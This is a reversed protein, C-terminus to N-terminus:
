GAVCKGILIVSVVSDPSTIVLTEEWHGWCDGRFQVKVMGRHKSRLLTNRSKCRFPTHLRPFKVEIDTSSVNRLSITLEQVEGPTSTLFTLSRTSVILSATPGPLAHSVGRVPTHLQTTSIVASPKKPDAYINILLSKLNRKFLTVNGADMPIDMELEATGELSPVLFPNLVSDALAPKLALQRQLLQNLIHDVYSIKLSAIIQRGEECLVKERETIQMQVTLKQADAAAILLTSPLVQIRSTELLETCSPGSYCQAVVCGTRYGINRLFFNMQCSHGTHIDPASISYIGPTSSGDLSPEILCPGGYGYIPIRFTIGKASCKMKLRARVLGVKRPEFAIRIHFRDRESESVPMIVEKTSHRREVGDILTAIQFEAKDINMELKVPTEYYNLMKMTVYSTENLEVAAFKIVQLSSKLKMKGDEVFPPTRTSNSTTAMHPPLASPADVIGEVDISFRKGDPKIITEVKCTSSATFDKVKHSAFTLQCTSLQGPKLFLLNSSVSFHEPNSLSLSVQIPVDGGNRVPIQTSAESHLGCRMSFAHYKSPIQVSGYGCRCVTDISLLADGTMASSQYVSIKGKVMEPSGDQGHRTPAKFSLFLTQSDRHDLSGSSSLSVRLSSPNSPAQAVTAHDSLRETDLTLDARGDSDQTVKLLLSATVPSRNILSFTMNYTSGYPVVGFDLVNDVNDLIEIVPEAFDVSILM